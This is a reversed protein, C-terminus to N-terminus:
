QAVTGRRREERKETGRHRKHHVTKKKAKAKAEVVKEEV